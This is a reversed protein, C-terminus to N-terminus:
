GNAVYYRWENDFRVIESCWYPGKKKGRYGGNTILGTFRKYKKSPKIFVKQGLPWKETEWIKRHLHDKLFDPYYDPTIEQGLIQMCWEVSGCPTYYLPADKPNEIKKFPINNLTCYIGVALEEKGQYGKQIVFGKINSINSIDDNANCDM